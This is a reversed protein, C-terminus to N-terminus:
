LGIIEDKIQSRNATIVSKEKIVMENLFDLIDGNFLKIGKQLDKFQTVSTMHNIRLILPAMEITGYLENALMYPKYEYKKADVDNMVYTKTYKAIHYRYKSLLTFVNLLLVNHNDLKVLQEIQFNKYSIKLNKGSIIQQTITKADSIM